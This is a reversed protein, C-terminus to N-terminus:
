SPNNDSQAKIADDYSPPMDITHDKNQSSHIQASPIQASQIQASPIHSSALMDRQAIVPGMLVLDTSNVSTLGHFMNNWEQPHQTGQQQPGGIYYVSNIEEYSPPM